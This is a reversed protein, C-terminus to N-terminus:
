RVNKAGELVGAIYFSININLTENNCTLKWMSVPQFAHDREYVGRNSRGADWYACFERSIVVEHQLFIPRTCISPIIIKISGDNTMIVVSADNDISRAHHQFDM